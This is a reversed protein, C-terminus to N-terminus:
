EEPKIDVTSVITRWLEFEGALWTKADDLSKSPVINFHQKEFSQRAAPAQVAQVSADFLMQLVEKPTGAPAFLAQWAITGVGPMGIEQMTPVDPYEPLREHGVLALPRIKGAKIMPISSAVNNFAVQTDGTVLDNIIAGAGGKNAILIMDLGGAKKAFYAMDFHTYNGVPAGYRVKGPSKKAYDILEQVTTVNFNTTTAVLFAPIDVLRAVPVIDRECNIRFKGPVYVPYSVNSSSNGMLLTYGDPKSRALEELAM